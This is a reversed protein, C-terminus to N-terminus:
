LMPIKKQRIRLLKLLDKLLNEATVTKPKNEEPVTDEKVAPNDESSVNGEEKASVDGAEQEQVTTDSVDPAAKCAAVSLVLLSAALMIAKRMREGGNLIIRGSIICMVDDFLKM